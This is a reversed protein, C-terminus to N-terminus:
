TRLYPIKAIVMFGYRKTCYSGIEADQHKAKNRLIYAFIQGCFAM